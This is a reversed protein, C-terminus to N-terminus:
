RCDIAATLYGAQAYEEQKSHESAMSHGARGACWSVPGPTPPLRCAAETRLFWPLLPCPRVGSRVETDAWWGGQAGPTPVPVPQLPCGTDARANQQLPRGGPVPM